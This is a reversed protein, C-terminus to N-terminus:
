IKSRYLVWAAVKIRQPFRTPDSGEWDTNFAYQSGPDIQVSVDGEYGEEIAVDRVDITVPRGEMIEDRYASIQREMTDLFKSRTPYTTEM